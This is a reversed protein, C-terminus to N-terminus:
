PRQKISLTMAFRAVLEGKATATVTVGIQQREGTAVCQRVARDISPGDACTFLVDTEPRKLFEAKLDKFIPVVSAKARRASELALIGGTVDAGIALAGLYMSRLHNRSLFGLPIRVVVREDTLEKVTPRALFLLPVHTLAFVRVFLTAWVHRPLLGMARHAIAELSSILNNHPM